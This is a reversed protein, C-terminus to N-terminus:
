PAPPEEAQITYTLTGGLNEINFGGVQFGDGVFLQHSDTTFAPEGLALIQTQISALPGNKFQILPM